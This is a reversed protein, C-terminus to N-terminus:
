TGTQQYCAPKFSRSFAYCTNPNNVVSSLQAQYTTVTAGGATVPKSEVFLRVAVIDALQFSSASGSSGPVDTWINGYNGNVYGFVAPPNPIQDNGAPTDSSPEYPANYPQSDLPLYLSYSLVPVHSGSPMNALSIAPPSSPCTNTAGYITQGLGSGASFTVVKLRYINKYAPPSGAPYPRVYAYVWVPPSVSSTASPPSAYFLVEEPCAVVVPSDLGDTTAWSGAGSSPPYQSGELLSLLTNTVVTSSDTGHVTALASNTLVETNTLTIAVTISIISFIIMVVLLEVLTFGDEPAKAGRPSAAGSSHRLLRGRINVVYRDGADGGALRKLVTLADYLRGHISM